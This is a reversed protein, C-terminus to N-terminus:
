ATQRDKCMVGVTKNGLRDQTNIDALAVGLKTTATAFLIKRDRMNSSATAPTSPQSPATM